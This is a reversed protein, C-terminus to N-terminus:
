RQWPPSDETENAAKWTQRDVRFRTVHLFSRVKPDRSKMALLARIGPADFGHLRLHRLIEPAVSQSHPGYVALERFYSNVPYLEGLRRALEPTWRQALPQLDVGLEQLTALMEPRWSREGKLPENEYFKLLTPVVDTAGALGCARAADLLILPPGNGLVEYRTGPTERLKEQEAPDSTQFAYTELRTKIQPWAHAAEKEARIVVEPFYYHNVLEPDDAMRRLLVPLVLPAAGPEYQGIHTLSDLANVAVKRDPHSAMTTLYPISRLGLNSITAFYLNLQNNAPKARIVPQLFRAEADALWREQNGTIRMLAVWAEMALDNRGMDDGDRAYDFDTVIGELAPISDASAPGLDALKSIIWRRDTTSDALQRIAWPLATELAAKEGRRLMQGSVTLAGGASIKGEQELKLLVPIAAPDPKPPSQRLALMAKDFDTAKERRDFAGEMSFYERAFVPDKVFQTEKWLAELRELLEPLLDLPLPKMWLGLRLVNLSELKDDPPCTHFLQRAAEHAPTGAERLVGFLVKRVEDNMRGRQRILLQGLRNCQAETRLGMAALAEAIKGPEYGAIGGGFTQGQAQRLEAPDLDTAKLLDLLPNALSRADEGLTRITELSVKRVVPSPDALGAKLDPLIFSSNAELLALTRLAAARCAFNADRRMTRVAPIAALPGIAGLCRAAQVRVEPSRHRLLGTLIPIAPEAEFALLDFAEAMAEFYSVTIASPYYEDARGPKNKKGIVATSAPLVYTVTRSVKIDGEGISRALAVAAARGISALIEAVGSRVPIETGELTEARPMKKLFAMLRPILPAAAERLDVLPRAEQLAAGQERAEWTREFLEWTKEMSPKAGAGPPEADAAFGAGPPLLLAAALGAAWWRGVLLPLSSPSM